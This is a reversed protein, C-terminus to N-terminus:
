KEEPKNQSHKAAESEAHTEDFKRTDEVVGSFRRARRSSQLVKLDVFVIGAGIVLAIVATLANDSTFLVACIGMYASLAYLILVSATQSFGMDILKHHLHGRDAAFPSQHKLLRRVISTITDGAPIGLILFPVLFSVTANFKFVGMVSITSLSFGLMLAGTDGMFIKAPHLNYPLFGLCAGALILALLAVTPNSASIVATLVLCFAAIVSVGCALGDLGDILNVANTIGVIWFLTLIVSLWYPFVITEGAFILSNIVTGTFVPVAAALFQGIFKMWPKLDWVDDLIGLAVTILLGTLIGLLKLDIKEVFLLTALVFSVSIGLGGILPVPNKHMRRKDRPIDVAGIRYALVRVVPTLAFSLLISFLFALFGYILDHITLTALEIGPSSSVVAFIGPLAAM